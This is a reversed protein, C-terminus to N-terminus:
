ASKVINSGQVAVNVAPLPSQAPGSVPSGDTISFHSQHFPCVIQGGQVSGVPNGQHTCIASFGKFQGATPQTVVVKADSFVKGGGVPVDSVPGLVAGGSSTAPASSSPATGTPASTPTSSTGTTAPASSSGGGANDSGGCAALIPASAGALAAIAACRLVSRRDRLNDGEPTQQPTTPARTDDSM